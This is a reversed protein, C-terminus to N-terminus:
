QPWSEKLVDVLDVNEGGLGEVIKHTMTEGAADATEDSSVPASQKGADLPSQQGAKSPPSLIEPPIPVSVSKVIRVEKLSVVPYVAQGTKSDRALDVSEIGMNQIVRLSTVVTVLSRAKMLTLLREYARRGRDPLAIAGAQLPTDTVVGRLTLKVPNIIAHDSAPLGTEVPFDTWEATDSWSEDLTADFEILTLLIPDIIRAGASAPRKPMLNVEDTGQGLREPEYEL